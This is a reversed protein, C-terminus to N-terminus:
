ESRGQRVVTKLMRYPRLRSFMIGLQTRPREPGEVYALTPRPDKM